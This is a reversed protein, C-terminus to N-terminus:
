RYRPRQTRWWSRPSPEGFAYGYREALWGDRRRVVEVLAEDYVERLAGRSGTDHIREAAALEGMMEPPVDCGVEALVAPLGEAPRDSDIAYDLLVTNDHRRGFEAGTFSEAWEVMYSRAYVASVFGIGGPCMMSANFAACSFDPNTISAPDALAQILARPTDGVEDIIPALFARRSDSGLMYTVFSLYWSWPNRIGGIVVKNTTDMYCARGHPDAAASPGHNDAFGYNILARSMTGGGTKEMHIFVFGRGVLM